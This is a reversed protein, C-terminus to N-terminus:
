TAARVREDEVAVFRPLGRLSEDGPAARAVELAQALVATASEAPTEALDEGQRLLERFRLLDLNTADVALRYGASTPLLWRGVERRGLEPEFRRRLEGVHRRVQNTASAAPEDLWLATRIEGLSVPEGGAVLLLQLLARQRPPGLSLEVEGRWARVGGFLAFRVSAVDDDNATSTM